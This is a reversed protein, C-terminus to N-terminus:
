SRMIDNFIAATAVVSPTLLGAVWGIVAAGTGIFFVSGIVLGLASFIGAAVFVTALLLVIGAGIGHHDGYRLSVSYAFFVGALVLLGSVVSLVLLVDM